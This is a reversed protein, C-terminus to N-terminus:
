IPYSRTRGVVSGCLTVSFCQIVAPFLEDMVARGSPEPAPGGGSASDNGLPLVMVGGDPSAAVRVM